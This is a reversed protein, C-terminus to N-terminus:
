SRHLNEVMALLIEDLVGHQWASWAGQDRNQFLDDIMAGINQFAGATVEIAKRLLNEARMVRAVPGVPWALVPIIQAAQHTFDSAM